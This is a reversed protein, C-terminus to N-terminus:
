QHILITVDRAVAGLLFDPCEDIWICSSKFDFAQRALYHAVMNAERDAHNISIDVFDRWTSCVEDYIAAASNASFGGDKMTEVVELCDTQIQIRNMGLSQALELGHKLAYAEAMQADVVHNLYHNAAAVVGGKDDRIVVGTSGNNLSSDFAADTNMLLTGEPPSSWGKRIRVTKKLSLKYNTTLAVISTASRHASQIREDHAVQRREWWIYWGATLILEPLGVDFRKVVGGRDVIAAMIQAASQFRESLLGIIRDLGMAQWVAQARTCTFMMHKADENDSLCLPCSSDTGIHKGVLVARCPVHNHMLKRGHIKIKGPIALKWLKNWTSRQIETDQVQNDTNEFKKTWQCHYASKVSFMGNRNFHWAVLDERGNYLPIQLIRNADIPNFVSNIMEVDWQGSSPDILESVKTMLIRGRRTEIKLNPSSPIWSDKWIDIKNGDGVRWIYGEKFCELGALISQWTYSSGKKPKANLLDGDPYYKARLVRSCLSDPEAMLRWVQKALMALNFSQFDRFGMGGKSKPMCLKWWQQWHIKGHDETDGGGSILYPM